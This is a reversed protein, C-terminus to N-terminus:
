CVLYCQLPPDLLALNHICLYVPSCYTHGPLDSTVEHVQSNGKEYFLMYFNLVEILLQVQVTTDM